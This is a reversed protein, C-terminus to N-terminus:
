GMATMAEPWYGELYAHWFLRAAVGRWPRWPEAITALATPSPRRPLGLAKQVATALALDDVPWADPRLLAELLYITATWRGIGKLRTLMRVADEDDLATLRELDLEGALLAQALMRGYATKQRSFGITRLTADDLALFTAPSLPNTLALLRRFTAQASALSVQQELIIALLTAFGPPRQWLPPLGHAAVIAALHPDRHALVQVAYALRGSDLPQRRQWARAAPLIAEICASKAERYASNSWATDVVLAQKCAAYRRAAAPEARLYDRFLLLAEWERSGIPYLYLHIPIPGDGVFSPQWAAGHTQRCAYGWSRLLPLCAMVAEAGAVAVGIDLIPRAPLGPVATSGVHEVALLSPGLAARLRAAEVAFIAEWSLDSSVPSAPVAEAASMHISREAM